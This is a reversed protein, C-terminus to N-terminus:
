VGLNKIVVNKGPANCVLNAYSAVRVQISDTTANRLAIRGDSDQLHPIKLGGPSVLKWTKMSLLFGTNQPCDQDSYVDIVGKSGAVQLKRFGVSGLKSDTYQFNSGLENALMEFVVPNIFAADPSAGERAARAAAGVLAERISKGAANYRIGGLRSTDVSRDVGFFSTAGPASEPLWALLGQLHTAAADGDAYIYDGAAVQSIGGSIYTSFGLTGADRDVSTITATGTRAAGGDTAAVEIVMGKEFNVIDGPTGLTVTAGLGSSGGIRGLRGTGPGYLFACMKRANGDLAADVEHEFAEQYANAGAGKASAITLNSINAVNYHAAYGGHFAVQLSNGTGAIATAADASSNGVNGYQVPVRWESGGQSSDKKLMALLPRDPYILSEVAADQYRVKLFADFTTNDLAM